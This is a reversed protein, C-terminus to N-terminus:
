TCRGLVMQFYGQTLDCEYVSRLISRSLSSLHTQAVRMFSLLVLHLSKCMPQTLRTCLSLSPPFHIWLQRASFPKPSNTSLFSLMVQCNCECGHFGISDQAVDFATHGAPQPLHNQGELGSQVTTDLEPAWLMLIQNGLSTTSDVVSSINFFQRSM